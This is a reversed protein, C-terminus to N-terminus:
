CIYCLKNDAYVISLEQSINQELNTKYKKDNKYDYVVIKGKEVLTIANSDPQYSKSFSCTTDECYYKRILKYSTSIKGNSDKLEDDTKVYIRSDFTTKVINYIGNKIINNYSKKSDYSETEYEKGDTCKIYAKADYKTRSNSVSKIQVYGKCFHRLDNNDKKEDVLTETTVTSYKDSSLNYEKDKVYDITINELEKEYKKFEDDKKTLTLSVAFTLIIFIFIIAVIVIPVIIKKNNGKKEQKEKNEKEEKKM